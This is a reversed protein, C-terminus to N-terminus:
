KKMEQKLLKQQSRQLPARKEQLFEVFDSETTLIEQPTLPRQEDCMAEVKIADLVSPNRNVTIKFNSAVSESRQLKRASAYHGALQTTFKRIENGTQNRLYPV